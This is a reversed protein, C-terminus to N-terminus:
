QRTYMLLLLDADETSITESPSRLALRIFTNVRAQAQEEPSVPSDKKADRLGRMHVARLLPPPLNHTTAKAQLTADTTQVPTPTYPARSSPAPAQIAALRQVTHPVKALRGERKAARVICRAEQATMTM